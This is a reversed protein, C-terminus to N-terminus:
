QCQEHVGAIIFRVAERLNFEAEARIKDAEEAAANKAREIHEDARHATILLKERNTKSTENEARDCLMKGDIEAKRLKAAAQEAADDRIKQAESEVQRIKLIIEKSM